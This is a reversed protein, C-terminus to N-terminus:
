RVFDAFKQGNIRGEYQECFVVGKGYGIGVLFHVQTGGTGEHNSKATLGFSLRENKRRWLRTKPAQAQAMPDYKHTFSAGDLYFAIGEKWLSGHNQFKAKVKKAFEYRLNLDRKLLVGKKAARRCAFGAGHLVLRVSEDCVTRALGALVKIRKVTFNM